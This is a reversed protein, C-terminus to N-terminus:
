STQLLNNEALATLCQWTILSLATFDQEIAADGLLGSFDEATYTVPSLPEGSETLAIGSGGCVAAGSTNRLRVGKALQLDKRVFEENCKPLLALLGTQYNTNFLGETPTLTAPHYHLGLLEIQNRLTNIANWLADLKAETPASMGTKWVAPASSGLAPLTTTTGRLAVGLVATTDAAKLASDKSFQRSRRELINSM